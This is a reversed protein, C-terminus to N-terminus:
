SEPTTRLQPTATSIILFMTIDVVVFTSKRSAPGDCITMWANFESPINMIKSTLKSLSTWNKVRKSVNDKSSRWRSTYNTKKRIWSCSKLSIKAPSMNELKPPIGKSHSSWDVEDFLGRRTTGNACDFYSAGSPTRCKSSFFFLPWNFFKICNKKPFQKNNM